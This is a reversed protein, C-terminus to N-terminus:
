THSRNMLAHLGYAYPELTTCANTLSDDSGVIGGGGGEIGGCRTMRCSPLEEACIDRLREGQKKEEGGAQWRWLWGFFFVFFVFVGGAARTATTDFVCPVFFLIEREGKALM